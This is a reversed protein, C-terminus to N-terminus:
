SPFQAPNNGTAYCTYGVDRVGSSSFLGTGV